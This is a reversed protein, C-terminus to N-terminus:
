DKLYEFGTEFDTSTKRSWIVRARGEQSRHIFRVIDNQKLGPYPHRVRFGDVGVDVLVGSIPVGESGEPVLLAM